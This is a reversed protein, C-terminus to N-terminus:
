PIDYSYEKMVMAANGFKIAGDIRLPIKRPSADFWIRYQGKESNMLYSEFKKGGAKLTAKKEIRVEVSKTPLNIMFKEGSRFNGNLRYRYIFCYINDLVGEKRIIQESTKGGATKTIKVMSEQPLYEEAIKEKKGFINLNREIRVPYFTEPHLYIKEEDLFNMAKATFTVLLVEEGKLSAPGHFVLKAEGVTMKLKKIVYTVTEGPSFPTGADQPVAHEQEPPVPFFREKIASSEGTGPFIMSSLLFCGIFHVTPFLKM